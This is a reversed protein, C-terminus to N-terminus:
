NGSWGYSKRIYRSLIISAGISLLGLATRIESGLASLGSNKASSFKVTLNGEKEEIINSNGGIAQNIGGTTLTSADSNAKSISDAEFAVARKIDVNRKTDEGITYNRFEGFIPDIKMFSINLLNKIQEDTLTTATFISKFYTIADSESGYLDIYTEEIYAM